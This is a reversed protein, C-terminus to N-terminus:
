RLGSCQSYNSRMSQRYVSAQRQTPPHGLALSHLDLRMSFGTEGRVCPRIRCVDTDLGTRVTVTDYGPLLSPPITAYPGFYSLLQSQADNPNM